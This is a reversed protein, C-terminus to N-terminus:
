EIKSEVRDCGRLLQLHCNSRSHDGKIRAFLEFINATLCLVLPLHEEIGVVLEEEVPIGNSTRAVGRM